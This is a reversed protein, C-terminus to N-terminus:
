AVGTARQVRRWVEAGLDGDLEGIATLIVFLCSILEELRAETAASATVLGGETLDARDELLETRIDLDEAQLELAEVREALCRAEDPEVWEVGAEELLARARAVLAETSEATNM